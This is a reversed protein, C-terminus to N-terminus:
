ISSFVVKRKKLHFYTDKCRHFPETKDDTEKNEAETGIWALVTTVMASVEFCSTLVAPIATIIIMATMATGWKTKTIAALTCGNHKYRFRNPFNM